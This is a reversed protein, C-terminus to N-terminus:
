EFKDKVGKLPPPVTLIPAATTTATGAATSKPASGGAYKLELKPPSPGIETVIVESTAQLAGKFLRVRHVSGLTGEIEVLGDKVPTAAGEVEVSVDNPIVVLKVRQTKSPAAPAESADPAATASATSSPVIAALTPASEPVASTASAPANVTAAPARTAFYVGGGLVSFAAAAIGAILPAKSSGRQTGAQSSALASATTDPSTAAGAVPTGEPRPGTGGYSGSASLNLKPAVRQMTEPALPTFMSEHITWGNPLLQRVANFMEEATQFREAPDHRLARHVIAAVEAPVWPAENQLPPPPDHCISIILQGLATIHGYPTKGSLAQYLVVGLSWVDTRHDISRAGRAQEPSMYLPSGLMNGTKTLGASETENAHEMKVKAIGFDLLKVLVEGADRQALYLNAPKIDRHVVHADHAKRLGLCSQAVIRLALDHSIPGLRKLLHQLDEGLLYEMVMYPMGSEPDRGTDLVQTIHQSDIAGAAKAERQFRAILMENTSFDGANILKLAVRRGTGTHEAEFVSGMAGAGILRLVHYRGDIISGIM